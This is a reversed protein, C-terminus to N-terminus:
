VAIFIKIRRHMEGNKGILKFTGDAERKLRDIVQNTVIEPQFTKAQSILQDVLAEGTIEAIGGVDYIKKEPYFHTILGGLEYRAEIIKTKLARMGSYFATYLGAPGGGVITVDYLDNM